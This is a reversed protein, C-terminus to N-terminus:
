SRRRIYWAQRSKDRAIDINQTNNHHKDLHVAKAEVSANKDVKQANSQM